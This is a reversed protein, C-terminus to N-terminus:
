LQNLDEDSLGTSLKVTNRDVGHALLKKAMAMQAKHMGEKIGEERGEAKGEKIGEARAEDLKQAIIAQADRTRKVEQEYILLENETWYYRDLEHYAQQIIADTGIITELDAPHTDEAHKFFYCWKEIISTLEEPAKKFKPLEIFTFYFDKLDHEGSDRDLIIHDSKYSPKDPFILCDAIAIFIIEKLEHYHDGQDAQQSYAKAAYYQARKEFGKTKAVQMEIIYKVGNKDQCLVDVLSQKKALIDPDQIPSLFTVETIAQNGSFALIDNLFHILIGKNKETGFIKKFAFDNKPDLFKSLAM